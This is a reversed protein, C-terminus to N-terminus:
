RNLWHKGRFHSQASYVWGTPQSPVVHAPHQGRLQIVESITHTVVLCCLWPRDKIRASMERQSWISGKWEARAPASDVSEMLHQMYWGKHRNQERRPVEQGAVLVRPKPPPDSSIPCTGEEQKWVWGQVSLIWGVTFPKNGCPGRAGSGQRPEQTYSVTLVLILSFLVISHKSKNLLIYILSMFCSRQCHM